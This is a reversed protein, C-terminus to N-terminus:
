RAKSKRRNRRSNVYEELDSRDFRYEHPTVAIFTIAKRRCLRRLTEASIALCDAAEETSLLAGAPKAKPTEQDALPDPLAGPFLAQLLTVPHNFPRTLM